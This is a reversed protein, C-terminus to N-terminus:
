QPDTWIVRPTRPFLKDLRAKESPTLDTLGQYAQIGYSVQAGDASESAIGQELGAAGRAMRYAIACVLERLEPSPTSLDVSRRSLHSRVRVAARALMSDGDTYGFTRLDTPTAILEGPEVEICEAYEVDRRVAGDLEILWAFRYLGEIAEEAEVDIYYRKNELDDVISNTLEVALGDREVELAIADLPYSDPTYTMRNTSAAVLTPM